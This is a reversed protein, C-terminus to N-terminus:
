EDEETDDDIADLVCTEHCLHKAHLTAVIIVPESAEIGNDCLPCMAGASDHIKDAVKHSMTIDRGEFTTM